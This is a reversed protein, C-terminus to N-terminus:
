LIWSKVLPNLITNLYKCSPEVWSSENNLKMLKNVGFMIVCHVIDRLLTVCGWATTILFELQRLPTQLMECCFLYWIVAQIVIQYMLIYWINVSSFYM